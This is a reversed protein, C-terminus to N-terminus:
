HAEMAANVRAKLDAWSEGSRSVVGLEAAKAQVGENSSWWPAASGNPKPVPLSFEQEFPKSPGFFTSARMIHETGIKGTAECWRAYRDLGALMNASAVGAKIRANWADEADKRPNNGSRKPYRKWAVDFESYPRSAGLPKQLASASASAPTIRLNATHNVKRLAPNGGLNGGAARKIRISEDRVMRRSFICEGDVSYVKARDLESLWGVVSDIAAGVMRALTDKCIVKDGVKLYGYPNGEHMLCLMDMWLGRAGVSCSRLDTSRLWDGPYFQFSPRKM